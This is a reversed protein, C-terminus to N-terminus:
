WPAGLAGRELLQRAFRPSPKDCFSRVQFCNLDATDRLAGLELWGQENHGERAQIGLLVVQRTQSAAIAFARELAYTFAPEDPYYHDSPMIAVVADADQLRISLLGHVIPRRARTVHSFSASRLRFAQNSFSLSIPGCSPICSRAPLSASEARERTKGLLTKGSFLPCFQKPRNDGAILRTLELLHTGYGGALIIAWRRAREDAALTNVSYERQSSVNMPKDTVYGIHM